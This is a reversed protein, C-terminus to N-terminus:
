EDKAELLLGVKCIGPRREMNTRQSIDIRYRGKEPFRFKQFLVGKRHCFDGACKGLYEPMGVGGKKRVRIRGNKELVKGSPATIKARLKLYKAGFGYSHEIFFHLRYARSIDEIRPRFTIYREKMWICDELDSVYEEYEYACSPIILLM